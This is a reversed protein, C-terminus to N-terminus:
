RCALVLRCQMNCYGAAGVHASTTSQSWQGISGTTTYVRAPVYFITDSANRRQLCRAYGIGDMIIGGVTNWMLLQSHAIEASTYAGGGPLKNNVYGLFVSELLGYAYNDGNSPGCTFQGAMNFEYYNRGLHKGSIHAYYGVGAGADLTSACEAIVNYHGAGIAGINAPTIGLRERTKVTNGATFSGDAFLTLPFVYGDGDPHNPNRDAFIRFESGKFADMEWLDIGAGSPDPPKVVINGGETESTYLLLKDGVEIGGDLKGGTKPFAKADKIDYTVGNATWTSMDPM